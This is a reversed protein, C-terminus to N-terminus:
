GHKDRFIGNSGAVTLHDAEVICLAENAYEFFIRSLEDSQRVATEVRRSREMSRVVVSFLLVLMFTSFSRMWLEHPGPHFIERSMSDGGSILLDVASDGVWFLAVFVTLVALQTKRAPTTFM